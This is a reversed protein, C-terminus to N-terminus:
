SGINQIGQKRTNAVKDMFKSVTSFADDRKTVYNQLDTTNQQLYNNEQDIDYKVDEQMLAIADYSMKTAADYGYRRLISVASPDVSLNVEDPDDDGQEFYAAAKYLSALATGLEDIKKERGTILDGYAQALDELASTRRLSAQLVAVDYPQHHLGDVAYDCQPTGLVSYGLDEKVIYASAM